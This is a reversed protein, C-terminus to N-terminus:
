NWNRNQFLDVLIRGPHNQQNTKTGPDIILKFEPVKLGNLGNGSKWRTQILFWAPSGSSWGNRHEVCQVFWPKVIKMAGNKKGATLRPNRHAEGLGEQQLQSILTYLCAKRICTRPAHIQLPFGPIASRNRIFDFPCFSSSSSRYQDMNNTCSAVLHWFGKAIITLIM